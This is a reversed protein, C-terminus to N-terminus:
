LMHLCNVFYQLDSRIRNAFRFLDSIENESVRYYGEVAKHLKKYKRTLDPYLELLTAFSKILTPADAFGEPKGKNRKIFDKKESHELLVRHSDEVATYFNKLEFHENFKKLHEYERREAHNYRIMYRQLVNLDAEEKTQVSVKLTAKTLRLARFPQDYTKMLDKMYNTIPADKLEYNQSPTATVYKAISSFTDSGISLAKLDQTVFTKNGEEVQHLLVGASGRIGCMILTMLDKLPEFAFPAGRAVDDSYHNFISHITEADGSLVVGENPAYIV